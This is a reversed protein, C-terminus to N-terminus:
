PQPKIDGDPFLFTNSYMGGGFPIEKSKKQTTGTTGHGNYGVQKSELQGKRLFDKVSNPEGLGKIYGYHTSFNFNKSWGNEDKLDSEIPYIGKIKINNAVWLKARVEDNIDLGAIGWIGDSGQRFAIENGEIAEKLHYAEEFLGSTGLKTTATPDWYVWYVDKNQDNKGSYAITGSPQESTSPIIDKVYAFNTTFKVVLKDNDKWQNFIEAFAQEILKEDIKERKGKIFKGYVNKNIEATAKEDTPEVDRGDPDIYKLPNNLCYNYPNCDLHKYYLPDVSTFRVIWAAYYRAGFYYFGTETDNEKGVYKYRKQSINTNHKQYATTGFPHYEEYTLIVGSEDLEISSSGLHNNVQYRVTTQGGTEHDITAIRQKNDMVRATTREVTLTNSSYKRYVEFNNLYFREERIIGKEVVKRTRNGASYWKHRFNSIIIYYARM